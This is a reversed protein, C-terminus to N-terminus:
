FTWTLTVSAEFRDTPPLNFLYSLTDEPAMATAALRCNVMQVGGIEGYDASCPKERLRGGLRVLVRSSISFNKGITDTHVLGLRLSPDIRYKKGKDGLSFGWLVGLQKSVETMMLVSADHWRRDYLSPVGAPTGDSLEYDVAAKRVRDVHESGVSVDVLHTPGLAAFGEAPAAGTTALGIALVCLAARASM